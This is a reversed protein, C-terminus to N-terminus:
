RLSEFTRSRYANTVVTLSSLPMLIAAVLPNLWGAMALICGVVNYALSFVLGRRIVAFTRRAGVFLQGVTSLGPATSFADAAALSAEAGGHVAIGVTAASLAAADNVGDGVMAVSQFKTLEEITALKNEPSAGGRAFRLPRGVQAALAQVAGEHDGSLVACEIGMTNLLEITERAEQRLRDGFACLAIVKTNRAVLVPTHGEVVHSAIREILVPDTSFGLATFWGPAGVAFREGDVVAQIGGGVHHVLCEVRHDEAEAELARVMANAVPHVALKEIAHVQSKVTADGEWAVLELRGETLTGTKDLVVLEAKALAELVDGGKVFIGARAARGLAATVALPTAMGLACPCTVVLLAIANEVGRSFDWFSWSAVTVVALALIVLVFKGSISDALRVIRARRRSAEEVAQMLKAVRTELGAREVRMRITSLLNTTGACIRAGPQIIEPIPEGTLWSTDLTSSGAGVIGDAPVHENVLIEVEDGPMLTDASVVRTGDPDVRRATTPALSYLLEAASRALDQQRLQIWRGVLLLFILVTITDFYVGGTGRWTAVAGGAFGVTIGLAIPLDMHAVGARLAGLAGRFFPWASWFVAPLTVFLSGWRFLAAHSPDMGSFEGSYLALAMLMANGAAAAAVGMRILLRRQESRRLLMADAGRVPHAPYGLSDLTRALESLQIQTPDYTLTVISRGIDLVASSAGDVLLSVREVLWVCASCHVGELYLEVTVLGGPIPRCYLSQFRPEDFAEYGRNTSSAPRAEAGSSDRLAYYASLGHQNLVAYVTRCGQCCFQLEAAPDIDGRAVM